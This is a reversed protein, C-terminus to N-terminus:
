AIAFLSICRIVTQEFKTFARSAEAGNIPPYTPVAKAFQGWSATSTPNSVLWLATTLSGYGQRGIASDWKDNCLVDAQIKARVANTKEGQFGVDNSNGCSELRGFTSLSSNTPFSRWRVFYAKPVHPEAFPDAFGAISYKKYYGLSPRTDYTHFAYGIALLNQEWAPYEIAERKEARIMHSVHQADPTKYLYSFAEYGPVMFRPIKQYAGKPGDMKVWGNADSRLLAAQLCQSGDQSVWVANVYAGQIPKMTDADIFQYEVLNDDSDNPYRLMGSYSCGSIISFLVILFFRM